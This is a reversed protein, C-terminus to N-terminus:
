RRLEIARGITAEDLYELSSGTPIGQSLRTLKINLKLDAIKKRLFFATSEGEPTFNTAIIIEKIKGSRLYSILKGIKLDEPAIGQLPSIAGWLVYYLGEYVGSKEIAEIDRPNEVVCITTRKRSPKRCISCLESDSLNNCIRCHFLEKKVRQISSSLKLVDASPMELIYFAIREASKRGIGPM